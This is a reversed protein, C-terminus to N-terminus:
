LYTEDVYCWAWDEGPEFSRVVPHGTAQAHRSAHTNPSADCCAVLGCTM